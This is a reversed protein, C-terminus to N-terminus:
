CALCDFDHVISEGDGDSDHLEVDILAMLEHRCMGRARGTGSIAPQQFFSAFALYLRLFVRVSVRM